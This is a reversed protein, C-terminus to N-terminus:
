WVPPSEYWASLRGPPLGPDTGVLDQWLGGAAPPLLTAVTEAAQRSREIDIAGAIQGRHGATAATWTEAGPNEIGALLLAGEIRGIGSGIAVTEGLVLILGQFDPAQDFRLDGTVVLIGAGQIPGSLHLDAREGGAGRVVNIRPAELSGLHGPVPGDEAGPAQALAEVLAQVTAADPWTVGPDVAAIGGALRDLQELTLTTQLYEATGESATRIAPGSAPAGDGHVRLTATELLTFETVPGGLSIPALGDLALAPARHYQVRLARVAGPVTTGGRSQIVVLEDDFQLSEISWFLGPRPNRDLAQLAALAGEPDDWYLTEHRVGATSGQWWDAARLLGIEAALFTETVQRQNGAIREDVIAHRMGTMAVLSAVLLLILTIVLVVGHHRRATTRVM